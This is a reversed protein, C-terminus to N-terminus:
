GTISTHTHTNEYEDNATNDVDLSCIEKRLWIDVQQEYPGNNAEEALHRLGRVWQECEALSTAICM